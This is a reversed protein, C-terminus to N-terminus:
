RRDFNRGSKTGTLWKFEDETLKRRGLTISAVGPRRALDLVEIPTGNLDFRIAHDPSYNIFFGLAHGFFPVGLRGDSEQRVMDPLINLVQTVFTVQSQSADLPIKLWRDPGGGFVVMTISTPIRESTDIIAHPEFSARWRADEAERELRVAERRAEEQRDLITQTERVAATVQDPEAELAEALRGIACVSKPSKLIGDRLAQVRGRARVASTYGLRYGLREWDLDLDQLRNDIFEALPLKM